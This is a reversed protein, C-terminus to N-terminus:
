EQRSAVCCRFGFDLSRDARTRDVRRYARLSTESCWFSGGRLVKRGGEVPGTPNTQAGSPYAGYWGAVWEWVNGAMDLADCWSAGTLFSGVPATGVYGDCGEGGSVVYDDMVTEDDFNGRSCDFDNGWPYVYGQEGRAAYEWQAETPLQAGAWACYAMADNWSVGVVPYDDGNYHPNDLPSEVCEGDTVCLAYQANTVETQDIWFADLTVAHVPQEDSYGDGSGMQFTGGPVYVMVM